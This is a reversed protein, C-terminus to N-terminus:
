RPLHLGYFGPKRQTGATPTYTVWRRLTVRYPHRQVLSRGRKSPAVRLHLTTAQPPKKHAGAVVFRGRAPQLLGAFSSACDRLSKRLVRLVRGTPLYYGVAVPRTM